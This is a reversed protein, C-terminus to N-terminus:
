LRARSSRGSSVAELILRLRSPWSLPRFTNHYTNFNSSSSHSRLSNSINHHSSISSSLSASKIRCKCISCGHFRPLLRKPSFRIQCLHPAQYRVSCCLQYKRYLHRCLTHQLHPPTFPRLPIPLPYARCTRYPGQSRKKTTPQRHLRPYKSTRRIHRTRGM